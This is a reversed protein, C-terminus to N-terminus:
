LASNNGGTYGRGFIRYDCAFLRRLNFEKWYRSAENEPDRADIYWSLGNRSLRFSVVPIRRPPRTSRFTIAFRTDCRRYLNLVKEREGPLAALGLPLLASRLM